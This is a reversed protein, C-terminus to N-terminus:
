DFYVTNYLNFLCGNVLATCVIVVFRIKGTAPKAYSLIDPFAITGSFLTHIVQEMRSNM